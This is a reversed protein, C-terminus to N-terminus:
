GESCRKRSGAIRALCRWIQAPRGIQADRGFHFSLSVGYLDISRPEGPFSQRPPRFDQLGGAASPGLEVNQMHLTSTFGDLRLRGGWLQVLPLLSQTLFLTKVERMPSLSELGELGQDREYTGAFLCGFRAAPKGPNEPLLFSAVPSPAPAATAIPAVLQQAPVFEPAPTQAAMLVHSGLFVGILLIFRKHMVAELQAPFGNATV